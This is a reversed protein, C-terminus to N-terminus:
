RVGLISRAIAQDAPSLRRQPPGPPVAMASSARSGFMAKGGVPAAQANSLPPPPPGTGDTATCDPYYFGSGWTNNFWVNDTCNQEFTDPDSTYDALDNGFLKANDAANNNLIHDGHSNPVVIGNGGNGHVANNEV